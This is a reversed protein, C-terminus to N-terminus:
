SLELVQAETQEWLTQTEQDLERERAKMLLMDALRPRGLRATILSIGILGLTDLKGELLSCVVPDALTAVDDFNMSTTNTFAQELEARSHDHNGLLMEIVSQSFAMIQRMLFDSNQSVLM